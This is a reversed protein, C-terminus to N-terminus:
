ARYVGSASQIALRVADDLSSASACAESALRRSLGKRLGLGTLIQTVYQIQETRDPTLGSATSRRRCGTSIVWVLLDHVSDCLRSLSLGVALGVFFDVWSM